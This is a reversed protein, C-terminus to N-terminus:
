AEKLSRTSQGVVVSLVGLVMFAAIIYFVWEARGLDVLWGFLIPAVAGGVAIGTTVFGFAKGMGGPPAAAKVMMDRAPRVLGQAFGIVTFLVIVLVLSFSISGLLIMILGTATFAIIAVRDHHRTWDALVGGALVGISSAFLYGTLAMGAMSLPMGQISGLAAISFSQIGSSTFSTAVFFLFMMLMPISLMQALGDKVPAPDKRLKEQSDMRAQIAGTLHQRQSLVALMVMLGMTGVAILAYRWGVMAALFILMAPAAASGLHGAFTHLSFAKGMRDQAITSSLIMYGAPHFVSHGIGAIIAFVFLFVYEPAVGMFIIAGGELALGCIVAIPGGWRDVLFGVPIQVMGSCVYFVTLLLGLAAFSVGLEDHLLPFLPPLCLIFVHSMFHGSCVLALIPGDQKITMAISSM